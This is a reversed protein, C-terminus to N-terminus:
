SNITKHWGKHWGKSVATDYEGVGDDDDNDNDDDNDGNDNDRMAFAMIMFFPAFGERGKGQQSPPASQPSSLPKWLKQVKQPSQSNGGRIPSRRVFSALM